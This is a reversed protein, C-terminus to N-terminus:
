PPEIFEKYVEVAGSKIEDVRKCNLRERAEAKKKERYESPRSVAEEKDENPAMIKLKEIEKFVKEENRENHNFVEFDTSFQRNLREVVSGFDDTIKEFTGAIFNDKYPRIKSYFHIYDSLGREPTMYPDRIMLSVVADMPNRILVIAPISWNAAAILQAPAHLHHAINIERKQAFQFALFAFSNASRPFGEIVVDTGRAVTKHRTSRRIRCFPLYIRPYSDVSIKIKHKLHRLTIDKM